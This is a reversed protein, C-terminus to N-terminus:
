SMKSLFDNGSHAKLSEHFQMNKESHQQKKLQQLMEADKLSVNKNM